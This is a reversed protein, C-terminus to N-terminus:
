GPAPSADTAAGDNSPLFTAATQGFIEKAVTIALQQFSYWGLQHLNYM